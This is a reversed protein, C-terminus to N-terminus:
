YRGFNDFEKVGYVLEIVYDEISKSNHENKLRNVLNDIEDKTLTKLYKYNPTHNPNEIELDDYVDGNAYIRTNRSGFGFYYTTSYLIEKDEGVNKPNVLLIVCILTVVFVIIGVIMLPLKISKKM